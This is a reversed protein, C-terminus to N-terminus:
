ERKVTIQVQLTVWEDKPNTVMVASRTQHPAKDLDAGIMSLLENLPNVGEANGGRTTSQSRLEDNLQTGRQEPIEDLPPMTLWRFDALGTQVAFVKLTETAHDYAKDEPVQMRLQIEEQAGADLPFFPSELGGLPLQSIEWTPEIDLVAIKLPQSGKNSLRLTVIDGEQVLPNQPDPFPERDETLLEVELARALKSSANDLSQVAQYKALHVLRAVVQKASSPDGIALLPRLNPIPMGRCIEYNGERDIAVQYLASEGEQEEVVWGNGALAQRVQELAKKQLDVLHPPLENDRDGEVKQDFLRVRQVLDIPASVMVAPAGPELTGNPAIGGAETSLIKAISQSADPRQSIEAIAVQQSKDTFDTTSLPYIAFRTGKSLGQAQGANLTVQSQTSNVTIVQVTYPTAWTDSGFVRRDSDGVVMPLQQPFKSQIQANIRDHLLKYTLPQGTTAVSTLTDIMWYTLAGHRELGGNVAYEYAFENPRCAALLVYDRSRPLGSPGLGQNRSLDLWNRELEEQDAVLSDATRQRTDPETASRIQADGRTAGGSHCSDLIVTVVLQKDAMRKLLTTMEVDRLYRGVQVDGIDMPVLGEDYQERIGQKLTPYVTKSRGGHGSYHIYVQEGPQARDTVERFANVINEYTPELGQASRADLLASDERSPSVLKLIRQSPVNLTKSLFSEVLDIDRVAGKLSKYLPNPQYYDIGVLLAHIISSAGDVM